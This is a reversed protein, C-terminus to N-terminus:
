ETIPIPKLKYHSKLTAVVKNHKADQPLQLSLLNHLLTYSKAGIVSLFIVVRKKHPVNNEPFFLNM